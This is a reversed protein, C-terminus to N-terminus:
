LLIKVTFKSGKNIESEVNMKGGHALVIAKAISLGIGSGGTERNRSKEGRYFREFIFPIDDKSIGM